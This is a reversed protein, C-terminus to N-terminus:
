GIGLRKMLSRVSQESIKLKAKDITIVGFKLLAVILGILIIISVLTILVPKAFSKQTTDNSTDKDGEVSNTANEAAVTGNDANASDTGQNPAPNQDNSPSSNSPSSSSSTADRYITVLASTTTRGADDTATATFTHAGVKDLYVSHKFSGNKGTIYGTSPEGNISIQIPGNDDTATGTLYYISDKTHLNNLTADFQVSPASNDVYITTTFIQTTANLQINCQPNTGAPTVQYYNGGDIQYWITGAHNYRVFRYTHAGSPASNTVWNYQGTPQSSCEEGGDNRFYFLISFGGKYWQNVKTGSPGSIFESGSEGYASADTPLFAFCSFVLGLIVILHRPKIRMAFM